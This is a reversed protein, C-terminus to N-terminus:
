LVPIIYTRNYWPKRTAVYFIITNNKNVRKLTKFMKVKRTFVNRNKLTRTKIEM